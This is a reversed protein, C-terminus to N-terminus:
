TFSGVSLCLSLGVSSHWTFCLTIPPPLVTCGAAHYTPAIFVAFVCACVAACVDHCLLVLKVIVVSM